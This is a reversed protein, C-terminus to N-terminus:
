FVFCEAPNYRRQPHMHVKHLMLHQQQVQLSLCHFFATRRTTAHIREVQLHLDAAHQLFCAFTVENRLTTAVYAVREHPNRVDATLLSQLLAVFHPIVSNDYLVDAALVVEPCLRTGNQWPLQMVYVQM